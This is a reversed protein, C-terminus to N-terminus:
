HKPATIQKTSANFNDENAPFLQILNMQLNTMM